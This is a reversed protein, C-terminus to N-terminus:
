KRCVELFCMTMLFFLIAIAVSVLGSGVSVLGRRTCMTAQLVTPSYLRLSSLILFKQKSPDLMIFLWCLSCLYHVFVRLSGVYHVFVRLSMWASLPLLFSFHVFLCASVVFAVVRWFSPPTSLYMGVCWLTLLVTTRTLYFVTVTEMPSSLFFAVEM